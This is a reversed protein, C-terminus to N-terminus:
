RDPSACPHPCPLAHPVLPTTAPIMSVCRASTACDDEDDVFLVGKWGRVECRVVVCCVCCSSVEALLDGLSRTFATGPYDGNPSWVRPPDGGEDIDEGLNLDGWNEHQPELGEIQDMSLVRAGFKKVREREDRRYPTQDSSMPKAVLRGDQTSPDSAHECFLHSALMQHFCLLASRHAIRASRWCSARDARVMVTDCCWLGGAGHERFFELSCM